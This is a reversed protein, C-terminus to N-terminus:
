RSLKNIEQRINQDLTAVWKNYNPHIKGDKFNMNTSTRYKIAYTKQDYTIDVEIFHKNRVSLKGIMQGQGTPYIEWGTLGGGRIIAEAIDTEPATQMLTVHSSVNQVPVTKRCGALALVVCTALLLLLFGRKMANM